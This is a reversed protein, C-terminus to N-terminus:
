FSLGMSYLMVSRRAALPHIREEILGPLSAMPMDAGCPAPSPPSVTHDRHGVGMEGDSYPVRRDVTVASPLLKMQPPTPPCPEPESAAHPSYARVQDFIRRCPKPSATSFKNVQACQPLRAGMIPVREMSESAGGYLFLRGEDGYADDGNYYVNEPMFSETGDSSLAPIRSYINDDDCTDDASLQHRQDNNPPPHLPPPPLFLTPQKPIGVTPTYRNLLATNEDSFFNIFLEYHPAITCISV